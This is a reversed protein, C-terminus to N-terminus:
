KLCISLVLIVSHFSLRETGEKLSLYVVKFCNELSMNSVQNMKCYILSVPWCCISSPMHSTACEGCFLSKVSPRNTCIDGSSRAVRGCVDARQSWPQVCMHIFWHRKQRAGKNDNAGPNDRYVASVPLWQAAAAPESGCLFHKFVPTNTRFIIRDSLPQFMHCVNMRLSGATRVHVYYACGRSWKQNNKITVIAHKVCGNLTPSTQVWM